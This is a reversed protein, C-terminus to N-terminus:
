FRVVATAQQATFGSLVPLYKFLYTHAEVRTEAEFWNRDASHLDLRVLQVNKQRAYASAAEQAAGVNGGSSVYQIAAQQAATRAADHSSQYAFFMGVGDLLMVVFLAVVLLTTLVTRM